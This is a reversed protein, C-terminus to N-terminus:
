YSPYNELFGLTVLLLLPHNDVYLNIVLWLITLLLTSSPMGPFYDLSDFALESFYAFKWHSFLLMVELFHIYTYHIFVSVIVLLHPHALYVGTLLRSRFTLLSGSAEDFIIMIQRFELCRWFTGCRGSPHKRNNGDVYFM